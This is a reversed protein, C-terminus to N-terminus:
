LTKAADLLQAPNPKKLDRRGTCGGITLSEVPLQNFPELTAFQSGHWISLRKLNPLKQLFGWEQGNLPAANLSAQELHKFLGILQYEEATMAPKGSSMLRIAHGDADKTIAVGKKSLYAIAESEDQPLADASRAMNGIHLISFASVVFCLRPLM